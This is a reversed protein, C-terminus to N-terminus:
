AGTEGTEGMEGMEGATSPPPPANREAEELRRIFEPDLGAAVRSSANFVRGRALGPRLPWRVCSCYAEWMSQESDKLEALWRWGFNVHGKEDEHVRAVIKATESDGHALTVRLSETTHDLNAYEFVLAMACVFRLPSVYDDVKNWFYGTVPFDGFRTGYARLRSLYLRCHIQEEALIELAEARFAAPADPFALLVWAYLEVAQLEHNAFGHLIRPRQAPDVFGEIAPVKAQRVSVIRLEPPRAPSELRLPVGPASDTLGTRAPRLKADVDPTQLINLAFDRVEM